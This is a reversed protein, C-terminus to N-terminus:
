PNILGVNLHYDDLRFATSSVRQAQVSVRYVGAPLYNASTREILHQDWLDGESDFAFDAGSAPSLETLPGGPLRNYVVRVSCWGGGECLSEAGFRATLLRRTGNPVTVNISTAPVTQWTNPGPVMWADTSTSVYQKSTIGGTRFTTAAVAAGAGFMVVAAVGAGLALLIKKRV